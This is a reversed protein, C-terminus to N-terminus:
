HTAIAGHWHPAYDAYPPDHPTLVRPNTGDPNMVMLESKGDAGSVYVISRGDPSWGASVNIIKNGDPDTAANWVPANNVTLQRPNTGDADRLIVEIQGNVAKMNVLETGDPSWAGAGLGNFTKDDTIQHQDSGDANMIWLEAYGTRESVFVIRSGDPSWNPSYDDGTSKTINHQNTGDPNMLYVEWDGNDRNTSFAISQGSPQWAPSHEYAGPVNTLQRPDSGDLNMLWIDWNGANRDSIFSIHQGDPAWLPFNDNSTTQTLRQLNAGDADFAYIQPNGVRNSTFVIRGSLSGPAPGGAGGCGMM